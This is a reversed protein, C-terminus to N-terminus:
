THVYCGQSLMVVTGYSHKRLIGGGGGVGETMDGM